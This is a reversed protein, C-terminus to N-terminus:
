RAATLNDIHVFNWFKDVVLVNDRRDLVTAWRGLGDRIETGKTIKTKDLSQNKANMKQRRNTHTKKSDINYCKGYLKDLTKYFKLNPRCALLTAPHKVFPCFVLISLTTRAKKRLLTM